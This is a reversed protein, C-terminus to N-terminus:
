FHPSGSTDRDPATCTYATCDWRPWCSGAAQRPMAASVDPAAAYIEALKVQARPLGQEAAALLWKAAELRDGGVVHGSDDIGNDYLIGLNCQSAADGAEAAEVLRKDL